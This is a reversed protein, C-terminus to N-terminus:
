RPNFRSLAVTANENQHVTVPMGNARNRDGFGLAFYAVDKDPPVAFLLYDGPVVKPIQFHGSV